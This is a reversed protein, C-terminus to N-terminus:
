VYVAAVSQLKRASKRIQILMVAQLDSESDYLLRKSTNMVVAVIVCSRYEGDEM